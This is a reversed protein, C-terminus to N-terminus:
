CSHHNCRLARFCPSVIAGFLHGLVCVFIVCMFHLKERQTYKAIWRNIPVADFNRFEINQIIITALPIVFLSPSILWAGFIRSKIESLTSNHATYFWNFKASTEVLQFISSVCTCIYPIRLIQQFTCYCLKNWACIHDIITANTIYFFAFILHSSLPRFDKDENEGRNAVMHNATCQARPNVPNFQVRSQCECPM